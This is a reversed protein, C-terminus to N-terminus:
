PKCHIYVRVDDTNILKNLALKAMYQM